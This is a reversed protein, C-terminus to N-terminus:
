KFYYKEFKKKLGGSVMQHAAMGWNDNGEIFLVGDKTIAFDWGVSHVGYFLQHCRIAEKMAMDFFPVQFGDFPVGTDPHKDIRGEYLSYGYKDFYGQDNVNIIVGGYHWNSVVAERAGMLFMCGMLEINGSKLDRVTTIRLSNVAHPYLEAVKSHQNNIREQIFFRQSSLMEMLEDMSIENGAYYLKGDTMSIAYIGVGGIGDLPKFMLEMGNKLVDAINVNCKSAFVFVDGKDYLGITGPVPFGLQEMFIAFYFKDRLIGTYSYIDKSPHNNLYDRRHMYVGYDLYEEQNRLGKVDFGYLYYYENMRGYKRIYKKQENFIERESKHESDPFYTKGYYQSTYNKLHKVQRPYVRVRFYVKRLFFLLKNKM